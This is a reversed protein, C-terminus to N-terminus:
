NVEFPVRIYDYMCVCDIKDVCLKKKVKQARRILRVDITRPKSNSNRNDTAPVLKLAKGMSEREEDQDCDELHKELM